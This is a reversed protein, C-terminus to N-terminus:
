KNWTAPDGMRADGWCCPGCLSTDIVVVGNHLGTVTPSEGCAECSQAYDPEYRDVPTTDLGGGDPPRPKARKNQSRSSM